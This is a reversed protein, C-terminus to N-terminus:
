YKKHKEEQTVYNVRVRLELFLFIPFYILVSFLLLLSFYFPVLDVEQLGSLTVISTQYM